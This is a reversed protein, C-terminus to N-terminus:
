EAAKTNVKLDAGNAELMVKVANGEVRLVLGKWVGSLAVTKGKYAQFESPGFPNDGVWYLAVWGSKTELVPGIHAQKSGQAVPRERIVGTFQADEGPIGTIRETVASSM